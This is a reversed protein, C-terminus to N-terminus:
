IKGGRLNLSVKIKQESVSTNICFNTRVIRSALKKNCLSSLITPFNSGSSNVSSSSGAQWSILLVHNTTSAHLFYCGIIKLGGQKRTYFVWFGSFRLWDGRNHTVSIFITRARSSIPHWNKIKTQLFCLICSKESYPIVIKWDLAGNIRKM